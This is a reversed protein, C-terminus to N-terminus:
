PVREPLMGCRLAASESMPDETLARHIEETRWGPFADSEGEERYEEGFRVHITLGPARVSAAWPVLVRVEPFGSEM